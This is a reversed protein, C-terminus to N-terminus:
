KNSSNVILFGQLQDWDSSLQKDSLWIGSISERVGWLCIGPRGAFWHLILFEEAYKNRLNMGWSM